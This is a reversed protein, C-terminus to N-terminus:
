YQLPFFPLWTIKANEMPFPHITLDTIINLVTLIHSDPVSSIHPIPFYHVCAYLSLCLPNSIILLGTSYEEFNWECTVRGIFGQQISGGGFPIERRPDCLVKHKSLIM